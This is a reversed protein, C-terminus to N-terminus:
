IESHRDTVCALSLVFCSSLTQNSVDIWRGQNIADSKSKRSKVQYSKKMQNIKAM